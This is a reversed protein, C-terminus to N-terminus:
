RTRLYNRRLADYEDKMREKDYVQHGKCYNKINWGLVCIFNCCNERKCTFIMFPRYHGKNLLGKALKHSGSRSM